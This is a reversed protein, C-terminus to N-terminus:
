ERCTPQPYCGAARWDSFTAFQRSEVGDMVLAKVGVFGVPLSWVTRGAVVPAADASGDLAPLYRAAFRRAAAADAWRSAWFWGTEGGCRLYWRRDGRWARVITPPAGAPASLGLARLRTWLDMAGVVDSALVQCGSEALAAPPLRLFEVAGDFRADLLALTSLPPAAALKRVGRVGDARLAAAASGAAHLRLERQPTSGSGPAGAARLQARYEAESACLPLLRWHGDEALAALHRLGFSTARCAALVDANRRANVACFVALRGADRLAEALARDQLDRAKAHAQRVRGLWDRFAPPQPATAACAFAERPQGAGIAFDAEGHCDDPFCGAAVWDAYREFTRVPAGLLPDAAAALNPTAVLTTSAHALAHAPAALVDGHQAAAAAVGNFRRAFEMAAASTRWRTVWALEDNREGACVLHAFRDGSWQTLFEPLDGGADAGEHQALLGWIGVVGVTNALGVSCKKEGVHRTLRKPLAIFDVPGASEPRLAALTSLPPDLLLADVEPTGGALLRALVLGPGFVHPFRELATTAQPTWRWWERHVRGTAAPDVSCLHRRRQADFSWAVLHADGEVVADVAANLDRNFWLHTAHLAPFNQYQLAHVVEHAVTARTRANNDPDRVYLTARAHSYLGRPADFRPGATEGRAPPPACYVGVACWGARWTEAHRGSWAVSGVGATYGGGYDAM